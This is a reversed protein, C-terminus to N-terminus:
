NESTIYHIHVILFTTKRHHSLQSYRQIMAGQKIRGEEMKWKNTIKAILQGICEQVIYFHEKPFADDIETHEGEQVIRSLHNEVKNKTGKKDKVEWDFEQLLLVRRLLRPEEEKKSLLYKLAAHNTFVIIKSHM